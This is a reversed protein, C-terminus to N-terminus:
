GSRMLSGVDPRPALVPETHRRLLEDLNGTELAKRLYAINRDIADLYPNEGDFVAEVCAYLKGFDGDLRKKVMNEYFAPTKHMLDQASHYIVREDGAADIGRTLGGLEFEDFLYNRCKELYARDAMQAILDATGILSGLRRDLPDKLRIREIPIEYGTFHILRVARRKWAGRGENEPFQALFRGGRSVHVPTYQAGHWCKRDNLRRIYGADHYLAVIIGLTLREAGLRDNHLREHGALLRATALTVDMAHRMDHYLTECHHYGPLAGGYLRAFVNFAREVLIRDVAEDAACLLDCVEDCVQKPNALDIRGTVDRHELTQM